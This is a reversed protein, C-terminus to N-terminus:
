NNYKEAGSNRNPEKKFSIDRNVNEKQEYNKRQSGKTIQGQKKTLERFINLVTTKFAKGLLELAQAEEPISESSKNKKKKSHVM